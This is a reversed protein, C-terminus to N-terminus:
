LTCLELELLTPAVSEWLDKESKLGTMVIKGTHYCSFHIGNKKFMAAPFLEPEYSASLFTAIDSLNLPSGMDHTASMTIIKVDTLKVPWGLSHIKQAFHIMRPCVDKPAPIGFCQM